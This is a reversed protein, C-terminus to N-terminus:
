PHDQLFKSLIKPM